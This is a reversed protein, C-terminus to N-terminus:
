TYIRCITHRYTHTYITDTGQVGHSRRLPKQTQARPWFIAKNQVWRRAGEKNNDVEGKGTQKKRFSKNKQRMRGEPTRPEPTWFAGAPMLNGGGEVM